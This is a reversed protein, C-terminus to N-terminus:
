FGRVINGNMDLECVYTYKGCQIAYIINEFIKRVNQTESSIPLISCWKDSLDLMPSLVEITPYKSNSYRIAKDSPRLACSRSLPITSYRSLGYHYRLEICFEQNTGVYYMKEDDYITFSKRFSFTNSIPLYMDTFYYKVREKASFFDRQSFIFMGTKCDIVIGNYYEGLHLIHFLLQRQLVNIMCKVSDQHIYVYEGFRNEIRFSLAEGRIERIIGTLTKETGDVELVRIEEICNCSFYTHFICTDNNQPYESYRLTEKM